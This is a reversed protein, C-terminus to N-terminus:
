LKKFIKRLSEGAKQASLGIPGIKNVIILLGLMDSVSVGKDALEGIIELSARAQEVTISHSIVPQAIWSEWDTNIKMLLSENNEALELWDETLYNKFSLHFTKM